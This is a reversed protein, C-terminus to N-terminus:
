IAPLLKARLLRGRVAVGALAALVAKIIGVLIFPYIGASLATTWSLNSGYKLWVAGFLLTIVMSLLNAIIAHFKSYGFKKLYLGMLIASPLFGIIYGGTPGIISAFGGSLGAFVPVGVAGLLIYIFVSLSGYRMGLITVTLGIAFTQGTIPILPLPIVLQAFIAIIAAFLASTIWMKLSTNKM